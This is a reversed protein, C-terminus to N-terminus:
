FTALRIPSVKGNNTMADLENSWWQMMKVREEMYEARNYAARVEDNQEHSLQREIADPHFLQSENLATSAISRFGHGTMRGKYGLREIVRLITANSMQERPAGRKPFVLDWHGTLLHMQELVELAQDSLPVYHPRRRKMREKPINWIRQKFDIENWRAGCLEGTRVFTIIMLRMALRTQLTCNFKEFRFLFEPLEEIQLAPLNKKVPSILVEKLPEAPDTDCAGMAQGYRFVASCRQRVRKTAELAGRAQIAELTVRLLPPDIESIPISGLKPFVNAELSRLVDETHGATWKNSKLKVWARAVAEFSNDIAAKRRLAEKKKLLSPDQGENIVAKAEARRARAQALSINEKPTHKGSTDCYVGLALTKEKNAYRYKLRWYKSGKLTVLLYLGGGDSLKYDKLKPKAAKIQKDTLKNSPMQPYIRPHRKGSAM